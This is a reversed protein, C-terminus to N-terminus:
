LSPSAGWSPECGWHSTSPGPGLSAASAPWAHAAFVGPFNVPAVEAVAGPRAWTGTVVEGQIVGVVPFCIKRALFDIHSLNLSGYTNLLNCILSKYNNVIFICLMKQMQNLVSCMM